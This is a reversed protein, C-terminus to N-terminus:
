WRTLDGSDFGDFFLTGSEYAGVDCRVGRSRAAGRQDITLTLGDPGTCGLTSDGDDIANSGPLLAITEAPGGNMQLPGLLALSNLVDWGDGGNVTITCGVEVDRFINRRYSTVAGFCDDYIPSDFLTNGVVMTNAINFPGAGDVFIGGGRGGDVDQDVDAGNFAITSSYINANTASVGGADEDANNLVITSNTVILTATSGVSAIGGGFFHSTNRSITSATVTLSGNISLIGGGAGDATNGDVTTRLVRLTAKSFIGGGIATTLNGRVTSDNLDLTGSENYIGAAGGTAGDTENDAVTTHELTLFGQNYIGGGYEIGPGSRFGNRLTLHTLTASRGTDVKLVRDIQNADIITTAEGTGVISILPDGGGPTVLNLDGNEPGNAGSAPIILPYTASSLLITAGAGSAANAQMVAARLTCTNAATRCIGDSSNVDVEDLLSDVQFVIQGSASSSFCVGLWYCAALLGGCRNRPNMLNELPPNRQLVPIM